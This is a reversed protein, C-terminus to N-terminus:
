VGLGALASPAWSAWASRLAARAQAASVGPPLRVKVAFAPASAALPGSAWCACGSGARVVASWGLSVAARALRVAAVQSSFPVFLCAPSPRQGSSPARWAWVSGGLGLRCVVRGSFRAPVSFFASVAMLCGWLWSRAVWRPPFRALGRWSRPSLSPFSGVGGGAGPRRLPAPGPAAKPVVVVMSGPRSQRLSAGSRWARAPLAPAAQDGQAPVHQRARGALGGRPVPFWWCAVPRSGMSPAPPPLSSRCPPRGFSPPFLSAQLAQFRGGRARAPPRLAVALSPPCPGPALSFRCPTRLWATVPPDDADDRREM